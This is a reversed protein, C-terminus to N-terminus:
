DESTYYMVHLTAWCVNRHLGITKFSNTDLIESNRWINLFDRHLFHGSDKICPLSVISMM